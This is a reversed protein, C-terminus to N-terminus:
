SAQGKAMDGIIDAQRTALKLFAVQQDMTQQMNQGQAEISSTLQDIKTM